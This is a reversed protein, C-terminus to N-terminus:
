ANEVEELNFIEELKEEINDLYSIRYLKINNEKCSQNKQSDREQTKKLNEETDWGYGSYEFHQKGDYELLFLLENNKNFIGFDFYQQRGSSFNCNKPSYQPQFNINKNKLWHNIIMEGKSKICGCSSTTGKKLRNGEVIVIGGCDCECLWMIHGHINNAAKEKVTLKGFKKGTLDILNSEAAREKQFCGCSQTNGNILNYTLVKITNGCDCKCLKKSESPLNELVVLKGFRQGVLDKMGIYKDKVCGCSTTHGSRLYDTRVETQNGCECLCVWRTYRDKRREAKKIVTLKGFKKRTLDLAKM